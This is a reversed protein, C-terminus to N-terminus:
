ASLRRSLADHAETLQRMIAPDGRVEPHFQKALCRYAADILESPASPLLHLIEFHNNGRQRGRSSAHAAPRTPIDTGPFFRQLLDVAISEYCGWFRWARTDPDFSRYRFPIADKWAAILDAQFPITCELEDFPTRRCHVTLPTTKTRM